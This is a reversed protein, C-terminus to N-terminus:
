LVDGTLFSDGCKLSMLTSSKILNNGKKDFRSIVAM